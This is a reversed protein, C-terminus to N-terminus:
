IITVAYYAGPHFSFVPHISLRPEPQPLYVEAIILVQFDSLVAGAATTIDSFDVAGPAATAAFRSLLYPPATAPDPSQVRGLLQVVGTTQNREYMSLIYGANTAINNISPGYRVLLETLCNNPVIDSQTSSTPIAPPPPIVQTNISPDELAQQLANADAYCERYASSALERSLTTAIELQSLGRSLEIGFFSFGLLIPIVLIFEIIAHGTQRLM